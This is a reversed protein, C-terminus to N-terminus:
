KESEKVDFAFKVGMSSYVNRGENFSPNTMNTSRDMQMFFKIDGRGFSLHFSPEILFTAKNDSLNDRYWPLHANQSISYYQLRKLNLGFTLQVLDFDKTISPQMTWSNSKASLSAQDDGWLESWRVGGHSFILYNRFTTSPSLVHNLGVGITSEFNQNNNFLDNFYFIDGMMGIKDTLAYAMRANGGLSTGPLLMNVRNVGISASAEIDGKEQLTTVIENAPVYYTPACSHLTLLLCISIAM